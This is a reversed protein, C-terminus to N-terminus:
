SCRKWQDNAKNKWSNDGTEKRATSQPQYSEVSDIDNVRDTLHSPHPSFVKRWTSVSRSAWLAQPWASTKRLELKEMPRRMGVAAQPDPRVSGKTGRNNLSSRLLYKVLRFEDFLNDRNIIRKFPKGYKLAGLDRDWSCEVQTCFIFIDLKLAHVKGSQGCTWFMGFHSQRALCPWAGRESADEARGEREFPSTEAEKQSRIEKGYSHKM